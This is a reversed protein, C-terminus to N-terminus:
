PLGGSVTEAMAARHAFGQTGRATQPWLAPLRSGHSVPV